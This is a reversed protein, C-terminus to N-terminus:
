VEVNVSISSYTIPNPSLLSFSCPPIILPQIDSLTYKGLVSTFIDHMELYSMKFHYSDTNISLLEETKAQFEAFTEAEMYINITHGAPISYPNDSEFILTLKNLSM